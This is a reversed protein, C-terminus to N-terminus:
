ESETANIAAEIRKLANVIERVQSVKLGREEAWVIIGRGPIGHTWYADAIAIVDAKTYPAVPVPPAPQVRNAYFTEAQASTIGLAAFEPAVTELDIAM